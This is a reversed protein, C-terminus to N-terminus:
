IGNHMLVIMGYQANELLGYCTGTHIYEFIHDYEYMQAHLNVHSKSICMELIYLLKM